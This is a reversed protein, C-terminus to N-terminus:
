VVVDYARFFDNFPQVLDPRQLADPVAIPAGATARGVATGAVVGVLLVGPLLVARRITSHLSLNKM